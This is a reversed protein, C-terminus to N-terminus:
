RDIEQVPHRHHTSPAAGSSDLEILAVRGADAAPVMDLHLMLRDAAYEIPQPLGAECWTKWFLAFPRHDIHITVAMATETDVGVLSVVTGFDAIRDIRIRLPQMFGGSKSQSM